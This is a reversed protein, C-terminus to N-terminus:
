AMISKRTNTHYTKMIWEKDDELKKALSPNTNRNYIALLNIERLVKVSAEHENVNMKTSVSIIAKKLVDRREDIKKEDLNKYGYTGLDFDKSRTIRQSKPTKGPKGVDKICSSAVKYTTGTASRTASYSIRRITKPPCSTPM